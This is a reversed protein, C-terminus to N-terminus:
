LVLLAMVVEEQKQMQHLNREERVEVARVLILHPPCAKDITLAEQEVEVLAAVIVLIPELIVEVMDAVMVVVEKEETAMEVRGPAAQAEGVTKVEGLMVELLVVVQMETEMVVEGLAAVAEDVWVKVVM